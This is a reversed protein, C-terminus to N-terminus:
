KQDTVTLLKQKKVKIIENQLMELPKPLLCTGLIRAEQKGLNEQGGLRAM